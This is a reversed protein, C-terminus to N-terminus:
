TSRNQDLLFEKGLAIESSVVWPRVTVSLFCGNEISLLELDAADIEIKATEVSM